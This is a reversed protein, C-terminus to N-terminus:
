SRLFPAFSVLPKEWDAGGDVWLMPWWEPRASRDGASAWDARLMQKIVKPPAPVARTVKGTHVSLHQVSSKNVGSLEHDPWPELQLVLLSLYLGIMLQICWKRFSVM